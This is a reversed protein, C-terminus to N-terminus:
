SYIAPCNLYVKFQHYFLEFAISKMKYNQKLTCSTICKMKKSKRTGFLLDTAFLALSVKSMILQGVFVNKMYSPYCCQLIDGRIKEIRFDWTHELGQIEVIFM